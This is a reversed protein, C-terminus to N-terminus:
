IEQPTLRTPRHLYCASLFGLVCLVSLTADLLTDM